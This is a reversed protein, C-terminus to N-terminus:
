LALMQQREKDPLTKLYEAVISRMTKTGPNIHKEFSAMVIFSASCDENKCQYRLEKVDGSLNRSNKTIAESGCQKCKWRM